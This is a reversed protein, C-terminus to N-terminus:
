ENEYRIAIFKPFKDYEDRLIDMYLNCFGIVEGFDKGEKPKLEEIFEDITYVKEFNSDFFWPASCRIFKQSLAHEKSICSVSYYFPM